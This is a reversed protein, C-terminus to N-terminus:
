YRRPPLQSPREIAQYPVAWQPTTRRQPMPAAQQQQPQPRGKGYHDAIMGFLGMLFPSPPGGDPGKWQSMPPISGSRGANSPQATPMQPQRNVAQYPTAWQPTTPRQPAAYQQAQPPAGRNNSFGM